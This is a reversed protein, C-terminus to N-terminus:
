GVPHLIQQNADTSMAASPHLWDIHLGISLFPAHSGETPPSAASTERFRRTVSVAAMALAQM